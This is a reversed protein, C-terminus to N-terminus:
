YRAMGSQRVLDMKRFFELVNVNVGLLLRSYLAGCFVEPFCSM